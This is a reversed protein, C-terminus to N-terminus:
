CRCAINCAQRTLVHYAATSCSGVTFTEFRARQLAGRFARMDPLVRQGSIGSAVRSSLLSIGLYRNTNYSKTIYTACTIPKLAVCVVSKYAHGDWQFQIARCPTVTDNFHVCHM